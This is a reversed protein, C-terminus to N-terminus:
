AERTGALHQQGGTAVDQERFRVAASDGDQVRRAIAANRDLAIYVDAAQFLGETNREVGVVGLWLPQVHRCGVTHHAIGVLAAVRVRAAVVDYGVVRFGARGLNFSMASGMIGLGIMGVTQTM